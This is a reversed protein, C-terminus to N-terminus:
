VRRLSYGVANAPPLAIRARHPRSRRLRKDPAFGGGDDSMQEAKTLLMETAVGVERGRARM